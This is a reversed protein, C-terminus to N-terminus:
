FKSWISSFQMSAVLNIENVPWIQIKKFTNQERCGGIGPSDLSVPICEPIDGGPAERTDCNSM